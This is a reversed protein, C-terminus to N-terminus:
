QMSLQINTKALTCEGGGGDDENDSANPTSGPTPTADSDVLRVDIMLYLCESHFQALDKSVAHM